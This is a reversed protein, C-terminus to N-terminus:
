DYRVRQVQLSQDLLLFENENTFLIQIIPVTVDNCELVTKLEPDKDGTLEFQKIYQLGNEKSNM